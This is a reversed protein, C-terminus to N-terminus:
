KARAQGPRGQGAGDHRAWRRECHGDNGTMRQEPVARPGHGDGDGGGGRLGEEGGGLSPSHHACHADPADPSGPSGLMLVTCEPPEWM